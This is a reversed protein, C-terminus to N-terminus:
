ELIRIANPNLSLCNWDVKDLNKELIHIASPNSSLGYWDVQDLNQELIHIAIPNPNFSLYIWDVNEDVIFVPRIM